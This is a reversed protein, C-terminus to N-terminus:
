PLNKVNTKHVLLTAKVAVMIKWEQTLYPAVCHTYTAMTAGLQLQCKTKLGLCLMAGGDDRITTDNGCKPYSALVLASHPYKLM